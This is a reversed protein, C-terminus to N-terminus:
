ANPRVITDANLLLFYQPKNASELAGRLIANNGGTFGLNIDLTTLSCWKAWGNEDIASQIRLASDDGTGNECVAVHTDPVRGIEEALSHLCDIALHAVRFNVIVVLLKVRNLWIRNSGIHSPLHFPVALETLWYVSDASCLKKRLNNCVREGFQTFGAPFLGNSLHKRAFRKASM